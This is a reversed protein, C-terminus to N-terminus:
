SEMFEESTQHQEAKIISGLENASMAGREKGIAYFAAAREANSTRKEMYENLSQDLENYEAETLKGSAFAEDLRKGIGGFHEALAEKGPHDSGGILCSYGSMKFMYALSATDEGGKTLEFIDGKYANIGCKSVQEEYAAKEEATRNDPRYIDGMLIQKLESSSVSSINM